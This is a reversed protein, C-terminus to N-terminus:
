WSVLEQRSLAAPRLAAFDRSFDRFRQSWLAIRAPTITRALLQTVATLPFRTLFRTRSLAVYRRPLAAAGGGGALRQLTDPTVFPVQSAVSMFESLNMYVRGRIIGVIPYDEPVKCGLGKFAHVLGKRSFSRIMGWTFPTGVGPLAEGVNTNSWVSLRSGASSTVPRSQLLYLRGGWEAWEIDQPVGFVREVRQSLEHLRLALSRDVVPRVADLPSVLEVATGGRPHPRHRETKNAIDAEIVIGSRRDIAVTDAARGAVVTEGLGWSASVVIRESDGTVPDRTFLVGARDAPVLQQVVVAMEPLDTTGPGRSRYTLGERGFLSAWSGRVSDLLEEETLVNMFSAAQGAMSGQAHDESTASSRVVLAGGTITKLARAASLIEAELQPPLPVSSVAQGFEEIGSWTRPGRVLAWLVERYAETTIVFSGPVHFNEHILRQLNHGKGGLISRGFRLDGTLPVIYRYPSM